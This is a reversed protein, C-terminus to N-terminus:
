LLSLSVEAELKNFTPSKNISTDDLERASLVLRYLYEDGLPVFHIHGTLASKCKDIEIRLSIRKDGLEIIGETAGLGNSPSVLSSAPPTEGNNFIGSWAPASIDV